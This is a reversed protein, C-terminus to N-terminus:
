GKSAFLSAFAARPNTAHSAQFEGIWKTVTSQENGACSRRPRTLQQAAQAADPRGALEIKKILKARNM